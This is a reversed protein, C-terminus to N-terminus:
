HEEIPNGEGPSGELLSEGATSGTPRVITLIGRRFYRRAVERVQERTVSRIGAEYDRPYNFGVGMLEDEAAQAADSDNDGRRLLGSSIAEQKAIEFEDPDVLENQIRKIVGEIIENVVDFNQPEFDTVVYFYGAGDGMYNLAHVSYVYNADNGRLGSHLWGSPYYMGSIVSDIVELAFKDGSRRDCGRFSRYYNVRGQDNENIKVTLGEPLEKEKQYTFAPIEKPQWDGFLAEIQALLSDRDFDGFACLVMNNPVIFTNYLEVMKERTLNQITEVTGARDLGYPHHDFLEDKMMLAAVLDGDKLRNPLYFNIFANKLYDIQNQGFNAHRSLDSLIEMGESTDDALTWLTLGVYDNRSVVGINMGKSEIIRMLDGYGRHSTGRMMLNILMNFYGSDEPKEWRLGGGFYAQLSSSGVGPTEKLLVRLGNELTVLETENAAQTGSNGGTSVEPEAAEGQPFLITVVLKDRQLYRRAADRVQERTVHQINEVYLEDFMPDGITLLNHSVSSCRADVTQNGLYFERVKMRKARDLEEQTILDGTTSLMESWVDWVLGRVEEPDNSTSNFSVYFQGAGFDPTWSGIELGQARPNQVNVFKLSLRSTPGEGLIFALIDLAYLDEHTLEISPVGLMAIPRATPGFEDEVWRISTQVPEPRLLVPTLPTRKWGEYHKKIMALTDEKNVDGVIAVVANDPSYHTRYFKFMDERTVQNINDQYGIVPVRIPHERFMTELFLQRSERAPNDLNRRLEEQVVLQERSVEQETFLCNQMWDAIIEIATEVHQGSTNIFYQTWNFSTSANSNGGISRILEKSQEETRHVVVNGNEDYHGTTGGAVIHEMYHSLGCGMFEDEYISGVHMVTRVSALPRSHNEEIVVKLGNELTTVLMNDPYPSGGGARAPQAMLGITGIAAFAALITVFAATRARSSNKRIM